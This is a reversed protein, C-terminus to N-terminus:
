SLGEGLPDLVPGVLEPDVVVVCKARALDASVTTSSRTLRLYIASMKLESSVEVWTPITKVSARTASPRIANTSSLASSGTSGEASSSRRCMRRAIESLPGCVVNPQRTLEHRQAGDGLVETARARRGVLRPDLTEVAVEFGLVRVDLADNIGGHQPGHKHGIRDWTSHARSKWKSWVLSPFISL